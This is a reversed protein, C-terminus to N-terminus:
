PSPIGIAKAVVLAGDSTQTYTMRVASPPLAVAIGDRGYPTDQAGRAAYSGHRTLVTDVLVDDFFLQSTLYEQGNVTVRFHVHVTRGPYWGPFIGDFTVRGDAGAVQHGRLWKSALAVADNGTCFPENLDGLSGLTGTGSDIAEAAKSYTGAPSAYWVDVIAGAIPACDRDVVVLEFRTPLGVLGDTIDKRLYTNSHCPGGVAGPTLRCVPGVGGAFPDGYDKGSLFSGSGVAFAAPVLGSDPADGDSTADADAAAGDDADPAEADKGIADTADAHDETADTGVDRAMTADSGAADPSGDRGGVADVAGDADTPGSDRAGTAGGDPSPVVAVESCAAGTWAAAGFGALRRFLDRRTTRGPAGKTPGTAM